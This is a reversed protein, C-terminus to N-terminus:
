RTRHASHLLFVMQLGGTRSLSRVKELIIFKSSIWSMKMLSNEQTITFKLYSQPGQLRSAISAVWRTQNRLTSADM